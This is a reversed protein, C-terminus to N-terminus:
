AVENLVKIIYALEKKTVAPHVPLSLIHTCADETNPCVTNEYGLEQYLPQKYIPMPYHVAAGVRAKQLYKVLKGRDLPFKNEVRIAYQYFVHKIQKAVYPPTL